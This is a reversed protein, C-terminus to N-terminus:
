LSGSALISGDSSYAITSVIETHGTLLDVEQLTVADYLWIGIPVASRSGPATLRINWTCIDLRKWIACHCWRAPQWQQWQPNDQAFTDSLFLASVLLLIFTFLTTKKM